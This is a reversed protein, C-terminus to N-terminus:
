INKFIMTSVQLADTKQNQNSDIDNVVTQKLVNARFNKLM